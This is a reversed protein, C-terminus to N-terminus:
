LHLHSGCFCPPSLLHFDPVLPGFFSPPWMELASTTLFNASFLPATVTSSPAVVLSAFTAPASVKAAPAVEKVVVTPPPPPSPVIAFALASTGAGDDRKRKALLSSPINPFVEVVESALGVEVTLQGRRSVSPRINFFPCLIEFAKVMAWSNPHLQSPAMNLHELLAHQFTIWSLVQSLVKFMCMYM